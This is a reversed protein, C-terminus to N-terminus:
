EILVFFLKKSNNIFRPTVDDYIDKTIQESSHSAMNYVFIDSQGNQVASLVLLQGSQSYSFDLVKQFYQLLIKEFKKEELNYLYLYILGNTEIIISLMEGSPHWALLPYSYDTKDDLTYGSKMIKKRKTTETNYIWVKYQGMENSVYALHVGDNSIKLRNYVRSAKIKKILPANSPLNRQYSQSYKKQYYTIWENVIDKYSIELVYLFGTEINRSVRSLYIINSINYEGYKEAIFRWFSHGAYIADKGTLANFKKYKGSLVGDRVINDAETSWNSSIYATLGKSYWDPITFITKNKIQSALSSGFMLQNLIIEAIGARIQHQFDVYNGNFYLFVKNGMIHTLGGTNYSENSVYGINSQKFDSLKNFIIFQMKDDIEFDLKTEIEKLHKIAYQTTFNAFQRGGLYYYVDFKEYRYYTWFFDNYQVRNKGFNLQMGSYFQAFGSYVISSLFLLITIRLIKFAKINRFTFKM